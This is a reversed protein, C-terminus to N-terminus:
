REYNIKRLAESLRSREPPWVNRNITPTIVLRCANDRPPCHLLGYGAKEVYSRLENSVSVTGVAICIFDAVHEHARCQELARRWDRTKAEVFTVWRNRTAVLDVSQGMNPVETRVRHGAQAFYGLLRRVVEEESFTQSCENANPLTKM